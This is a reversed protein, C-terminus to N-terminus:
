EKIHRVRVKEALVKDKREHWDWKDDIVYKKNTFYQDWINILMKYDPTQDFKLSRCYTMYKIFVEPLDKCLIEITSENRIKM